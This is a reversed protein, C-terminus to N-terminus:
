INDDNVPFTSSNKNKKSGPLYILLVVVITLVCIVVILINRILNNKAQHTNNTATNKDETNENKNNPHVEVDEISYNEVFVSSDMYVYIPNEEGIKKMKLLFFTNTESPLAGIFSYSEFKEWKSNYDESLNSLLYYDFYESTNDLRTLDISYNPRAIVTFKSKNLIPQCEENKIYYSITNNYSILSYEEESSNDIIKFYYTHPIVFAKNFTNGDKQYAFVDETCFYYEDSNTTGSEDSFVFSTVTISVIIM